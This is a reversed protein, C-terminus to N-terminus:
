YLRGMGAQPLNQNSQTNNGFGNTLYTAVRGFSQSNSYLMGGLNSINGGLSALQGGAAYDRNASGMQRSIDLGQNIGQLNYATNSAIAGTGGALGSGFQGGQNSGAVLARARMLQAERIQQRRARAAELENQRERIQDARALAKEQKRQGVYSTATGAVAAGVGVAAIITSIAAM